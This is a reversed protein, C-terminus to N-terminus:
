KKSGLKVLDWKLFIVFLLIQFSGLLILMFAPFKNLLVKRYEYYYVSPMGSRLFLYDQFFEYCILSCAIIVGALWNKNELLLDLKSYIKTRLSASLMLSSAGLIVVVSCYLFILDLSIYGSHLVGSWNLGRSSFEGGVILAELFFLLLMIM